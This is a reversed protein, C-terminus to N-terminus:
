ANEPGRESAARAAEAATAGADAAIQAAERALEVAKADTTEPDALELAIRDLREAAAHLRDVGEGDSV